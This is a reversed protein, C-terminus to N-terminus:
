LGADITTPVAAPARHQKPTHAAVQAPLAQAVPTTGASSVGTHAAAPVHAVSTATHAALVEAVPPTDATMPTETPEDTQTEPTVTPEDTPENTPEDTTEGAPEDTDCTVPATGEIIGRQYVSWRYEYHFAHVDFRYETHFTEAKAPTGPVAPRSPVAPTDPTGMFRYFWSGNGNGDSQSYVGDPGTHGGPIKDEVHWTGRPEDPYSPEGTLPGQDKNPSFSAWVTAKGAVAPTGPVAPTGETAPAGDNNGVERTYRHGVEENAALDPATGSTSWPTVRKLARVTQRYADNTTDSWGEGIQILNALNDEGSEDDPDAPTADSTSWATFSDWAWAGPAAGTGNSPTCDDTASAPVAIAVTTSIAAVALATTTILKRMTSEM